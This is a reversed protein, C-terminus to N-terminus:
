SSVTFNDPTLPLLVSTTPDTTVSRSVTVPWPLMVIASFGTGDILIEFTEKSWYSVKEALGLPVRLGFFLAGEAQVGRISITEM